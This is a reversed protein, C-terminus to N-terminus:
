VAKTRIRKLDALFSEVGATLESSHNAIDNTASTQEKMTGTISHTIEQMNLVTEALSAIADSVVSVGDRVQGIQDRIEVTAKETNGALKKVEDAVVAFGRGADGARAAEISANLALLNIQGSIDSILSIIDNIKDALTALNGAMHKASTSQEAATDIRKSSVDLQATISAASSSLEQTASAITTIATGVRNHLTETVESMQRDSNESVATFYATAINNLDDLVLRNFAELVSTRHSHKALPAELAKSGEVLIYRYGQVFFQLSLGIRMHTDGIIRIRDRYATNEGEELRKQWHHIQAKTLHNVIQDYSRGQATTQVIRLLDPTSSIWEYFGRLIGPLIPMLVELLAHEANTLSLPPIIKKSNFFM